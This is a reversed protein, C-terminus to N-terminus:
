AVLAAIVPIDMVINLLDRIFNEPSLPKTLYNHFGAMIARERDGSMAHATLAVVPIDLTTRDKKLTHLMEWGSMEPMSLDSIVFVPKHKRIVELGEKGDNATIVNAGCMELLTAAVEQSDVEDDVVVITLGELIHSLDAGTM